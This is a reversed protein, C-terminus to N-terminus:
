CRLVGRSGGLRSQLRLGVLPSGLRLWWIGGLRRVLLSGDCSSPFLGAAGRHRAGTRRMGGLVPLGMLEGMQDYNVM